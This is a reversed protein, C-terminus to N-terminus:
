PSETQALAEWEMRLGEALSIGPKWGAIKRLKHNSVSGTGVDWPKAPSLRRTISKGNAESILSLVENLSHSRGYSLNFDGSLHDAIITQLASAVDRVHIFDKTISGDGWIEITREHWAADLAFGIIGLPADALKAMGYPNTLRVVVPSLGKARCMQRVLQEAYVKSAGYLSVPRLPSQEDVTNGTTDGYVTGGSSFFVFQGGPTIVDSDLLRCILPFDDTWATSPDTEARAPTTSWALHVIADLSGKPLTDLDDYGLFGGGSQRSFRLWRTGDAELLPLMAKALRGNSGTIALRATM